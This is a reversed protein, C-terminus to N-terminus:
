GAAHRAADRQAKGVATRVASVIVADRMVREESGFFWVHIAVSSRLYRSLMQKDTNM